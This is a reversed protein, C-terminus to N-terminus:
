NKEVNIRADVNISKAVKTGGGHKNWGGQSNSLHSYTNGQENILPYEFNTFDRTYVLTHTAFNRERVCM